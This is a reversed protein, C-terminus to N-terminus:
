VTVKTKMNCSGHQVVLIKKQGNTVLQLGVLQMLLLMTQEEQDGSDNWICKCRSNSRLIGGYVTLGAIGHMADTAQLTIDYGSGEVSYDGTGTAKDNATSGGADPTYAIRATLGDPLM